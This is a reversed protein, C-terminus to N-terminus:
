HIFYKLLLELILSRFKEWTNTLKCTTKLPFAAQPDNGISVEQDFKSKIPFVLKCPFNIPIKLACSYKLDYFAMQKNAASFHVQAEQMQNLKKLNQHQDLGRTYDRWGVPLNANNCKCKTILAINKLLAIKFDFSNHM